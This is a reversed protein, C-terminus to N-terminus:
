KRVKLLSDILKDFLDYLNNTDKSAGITSPLELVPISIKKALWQASKKSEYPTHIMVKAPHTQLKKIISQLHTASPPIGPKPELTAAEKIHLWDFLYSWNKHHVVVPMNRLAAAKTEWHKIAAKWQKSFSQYNTEYISHNDPDIHKLRKSIEKAIILLNHPNLQVHPNGSPHVDGDSRDLHTPVELANVYDGAMINGPNGPQVQAPAKELLLPLWGVELENGTCIVLDSKRIAAILSPRARIYHPDSFANTATKISVHEQGIEKSLSEWEPECAFINVKALANSPAAILLGLSIIM